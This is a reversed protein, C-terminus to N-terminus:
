RSRTASAADCSTSAEPALDVDVDHTDLMKRPPSPQQDRVVSEAEVDRERDRADVISVSVATAAGM